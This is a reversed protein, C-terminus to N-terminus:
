VADELLRKPFGITIAAALNRVPWIISIIV